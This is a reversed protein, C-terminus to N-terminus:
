QSSDRTYKEEIQRVLALIQQKGEEPISKQSRLAFDVATVADSSNPKMSYGAALRLENVNVDNFAAAIRDIVEESPVRGDAMDKWYAGSISTRLGAARFTLGNQDLISRILGAFDASVRSM